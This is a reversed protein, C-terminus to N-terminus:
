FGIEKRLLLKEASKFQLMGTHDCLPRGKQRTGQWEKGNQDVCWCYGTSPHCQVSEYSNYKSCTPIYRGFSLVAKSLDM